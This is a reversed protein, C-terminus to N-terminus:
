RVRHDAAVSRPDLHPARGRSAQAFLLLVGSAGIGVIGAALGDLGDIFNVANAMGMVWLITLLYALGPDVIIPDVFPIRFYIISVGGLYLASGALVMGATKAPASIDRLDDVVGVGYAILGCAIVAFPESTGSFAEPFWGSVSATVWAVVLGVLM